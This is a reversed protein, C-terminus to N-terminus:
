TGGWWWRGPLDTVTLGLTSWVLGITYKSFVGNVLRLQQDDSYTPQFRVAAPNGQLVITAWDRSLYITTTEDGHFPTLTMGALAYLLLASVFLADFFRRRSVM